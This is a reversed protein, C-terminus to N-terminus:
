RRLGYTKKKGYTKKLKQKKANEQKELIEQQRLQYVHNAQQHLQYATAGNLDKLEPMAGANLLMKIIEQHTATMEAEPTSLIHHLATKLENDMANVDLKRSDICYGVAEKNLMITATTLLSQGNEPNVFISKNRVNAKNLLLKFYDNKSQWLANWILPYQYGNTSPYKIETDANLTDILYSFTSFNDCNMAVMIPNLGNTIKDKSAGNYIIESIVNIPEKQRIASFLKEQREDQKDTFYQEQQIGTNISDLIFGM